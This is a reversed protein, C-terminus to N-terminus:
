ATGLVAGLALAVAAQCPEIVPVRVAEEISARHHAMGTCGLIVTEAGQEVTARAAAVLRSRAAEPELLTEMTV